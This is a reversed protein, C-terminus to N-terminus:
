LTLRDTLDNDFPNNGYYYIRGSAQCLVCPYEDAEGVDNYFRKYGVGNCDPCDILKDEDEM